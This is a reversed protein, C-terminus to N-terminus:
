VQIAAQVAPRKKMRAFHAATKPLQTVDVGDGELWCAITFLYADAITYQEGMVWDGHLYEREILQFSALMTEPVKAQMDEYSSPQDAWRAGRMRHAHNVHVTSALYSNFSQLQAFAFSDGPLLNAEPYMQALYVLIAPTETLLGQETSLAPVRAKPNIAKYDSKTQEAQKFDILQLEFEAAVEHLTILSALAITGPAYFLKLQSM